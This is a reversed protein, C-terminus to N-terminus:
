PLREERYLRMTNQATFFIVMLGMGALGISGGVDFLRYYGGAFHVMPKWLLALNGVALLIRLETPGFRWFPM